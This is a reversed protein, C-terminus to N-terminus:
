IGSATCVAEHILSMLQQQSFEQRLQGFNAMVAERARMASLKLLATVTSNVILGTPLSLVRATQQRFLSANVCLSALHMSRAPILASILQFKDDDQLCYTM